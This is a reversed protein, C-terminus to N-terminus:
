SPRWGRTCISPNRAAGRGPLFRQERKQSLERRASEHRSTQTEALIHPRVTVLHRVDSEPVVHSVPRSVLEWRGPSRPLACMARPSCRHGDGFGVRTEPRAPDAGRRTGADRNQGWARTKGPGLDEARLPVKENQKRPMEVKAVAADSELDADSLLKGPM